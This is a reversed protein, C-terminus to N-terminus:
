FLDLLDATAGFNTDAVSPVTSASGDSDSDTLKESFRVRRQASVSRNSARSGRLVSVLKHNRRQSRVAIDCDSESDTDESHGAAAVNVGAGSLVACRRESCDGSTDPAEMRKLLVPRLTSAKQRIINQVRTDVTYEFSMLFWLRQGLDFHRGESTESILDKSGKEMLHEVIMLAGLVRRWRKGKPESLCERLHAMIVRRDGADHSAVAIGRLAGVDPVLAESDTITQLDTDLPTATAGLGFSWSLLSAM